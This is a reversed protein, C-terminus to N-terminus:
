YFLLSLFPVTQTCNSLNKLIEGIRLVSRLNSQFTNEDFDNLAFADKETQDFIGNQMKFSIHKLEIMELLHRIM